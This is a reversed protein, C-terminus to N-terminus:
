RAPWGALVLHRRAGAVYLAAALWAVALRDSDVPNLRGFVDRTRRHAADHLNTLLTAGYPLHSAALRDADASSPARLAARGGSVAREVRHRFLDLAAPAPVDLAPAPPEGTAVEAPGPLDSRQLVDVALDVHGGHHAPLWEAGLALGLVTRAGAFRGVLSVTRGRAARALQRLNQVAPLKPDTLLPAVTVPGVGDAHLVLGSHATDLVGCLFALDHGAPRTPAPRELAERYRVIQDAVETWLGALPAQTWPRGASAVALTRAGASLRGSASARANSVVLGSRAAQRHSLRAEGLTITAEAAARAEALGGPRVDSVTWLRGREDCLYTTAGAYGSTTLVPETLLGWLTLGGVDEYERRATGRALALDGRGGILQRCVTLVECLDDTLDGLRFTPEDARASRLSEVVRVAAAGARPLGAARAEYVGRLLRAQVVAGAGPIGTELVPLAARWLRAATDIQARETSRPARKARAPGADQPGRATGSQAPEEMSLIPAAALLATRHLCRPALLCTCVADEAARVIPALTVTAEADAAVVARGADDVTTPWGAAQAVVEDLRRRLRAPLADVADALVQPAVAPLSPSV